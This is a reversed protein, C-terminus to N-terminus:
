KRLPTRRKKNYHKVLRDLYPPSEGHLCKQVISIIKFDIRYKIPLWHLQVLCRTASDYKKKGLTIKAAMNQVAQMKNISSKPLGGLLSNTYDLHSLVLAVVLKNCASRTINKRASKIRYLNLIAAKCNAKIHQKFDLKSDLYAGLYKTHNTRPVIEGNTSISDISCKGQQSPRGFYIFEKKNDYMKLCVQNMWVKIDQMSKEMIAVTFNTLFCTSFHALFHITLHIAFHTAFHTMFFIVFHTM